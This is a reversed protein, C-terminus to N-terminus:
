RAISGVPTKKAPIDRGSRLARLLESSSEPGDDPSLPNIGCGVNHIDSIRDSACCPSVVICSSRQNVSNTPNAINELIRLYKRAVRLTAFKSKSWEPTRARFGATAKEM